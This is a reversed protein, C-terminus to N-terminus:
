TVNMSEIVKSKDGFLTMNEWTVKLLWSTEFEPFDRFQQRIIANSKRLFFDNEANAGRNLDFLFDLFQNHESCM